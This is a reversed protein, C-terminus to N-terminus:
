SGRKPTKAHDKPTGARHSGGAYSPPDSAPFSDEIQNDVASETPAPKRGKTGTDQKSPETQPRTMQEIEKQASSVALRRNANRRLMTMEANPALIARFRKASSSRVARDSWAGECATRTSFSSAQRFM